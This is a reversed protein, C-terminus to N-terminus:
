FSCFKSIVSMMTLNKTFNLDFIFIDVNKLMKSLVGNLDSEHYHCSLHKVTLFRPKAWKLCQQPEIKHYSPPNLYLSTKDILQKNKISYRFCSKPILSSVKPSM